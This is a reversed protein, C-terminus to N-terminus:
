SQQLHSFQSPQVSQQEPPPAQAQQEPSQQEPSQQEPQLQSQPQSQQAAAAWPPM